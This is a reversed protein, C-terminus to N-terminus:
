SKCGAINPYYKKDGTTCTIRIVPQDKMKDEQILRKKEEMGEKIVENYVKELNIYYIM